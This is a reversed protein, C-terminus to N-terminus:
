RGDKKSTMKMKVGDYRTTRFKHSNADKTSTRQEKINEDTIIPGNDDDVMEDETTEDDTNGSHIGIATTPRQIHHSSPILGLGQPQASLMLRNVNTNGEYKPNTNMIVPASLPLAPLPALRKNSIESLSPLGPHSVRTPSGLHRPPSPSLSSGTSTYKNPSSLSILSFIADQELQNDSKKTRTENYNGVTDLTLKGRGTLSQKLPSAMGTPINIPLGLSNSPTLLNSSLVESTKIEPSTKKFGRKAVEDLKMSSAFSSRRRSPSTFQGPSALLASSPNNNFLTDNNTNNKNPLNDTRLNWFDELRRNNGSTTRNLQESRQPNNAIEELSHELEKINKKSWGHQVKVNAYNLRTRLNESIKKIEKHDRKPSKLLHENSYEKHIKDPSKDNMINFLEISRRKLKKNELRMEPSTLISYFDTNTSGNKKRQPTSLLHTSAQPSLLPTAELDNLHRPIREPTEPISVPIPSAFTSSKPLSPTKPEKISDMASVQLPTKSDKSNISSRGHNQLNNKSNSSPSYLTEKYDQHGTMDMRGEPATYFSILLISAVFFDWCCLCFGFFYCLAFSLASFYLYLHLM